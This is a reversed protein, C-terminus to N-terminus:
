VAGGSKKVHPPPAPTTAPVEVPIHILPPADGAGSGSASPSSGYLAFSASGLAELDLPQVPPASEPAPHESIPSPEKPLEIYPPHDQGPIDDDLDPLEITRLVKFTRIARSYM